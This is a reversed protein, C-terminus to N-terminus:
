QYVAQNLLIKPFILYIYSSNEMCPLLFSSGFSCFGPWLIKESYNMHNIVSLCM